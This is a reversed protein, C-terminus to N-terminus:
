QTIQNYMKDAWERIQQMQLDYEENSMEGNLYRHDLADIKREVSREISDEDAMKIM